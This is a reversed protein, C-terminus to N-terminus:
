RVEIRDIYFWTSAHNELRLYFHKGASRPVRLTFEHWKNGGGYPGARAIVERSERHLIQIRLNEIAAGKFYIEEVRTDWEIEYIVIQDRGGSQRFYVGRNEFPGRPDATTQPPFVGQSTGKPFPKMSVDAMFWINREGGSESKLEASAAGNDRLQRIRVEVFTRQAGELEPLLLNYWYLARSQINRTQLSQSNRLLGSANRATDYWGNAL